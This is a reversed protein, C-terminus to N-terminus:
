VEVYFGEEGLKCGICQLEKNLFQNFTIVKGDLTETLLYKEALEELLENTLIIRM